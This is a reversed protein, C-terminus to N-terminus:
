DDVRPAAGFRDTFDALLRALEAPPDALPARNCRCLWARDPHAIALDAVAARLDAVALYRIMASRGRPYQVLGHERRLQLVGPASPFEEARLRHWPGFQVGPHYSAARNEVSGRTRRAGARLRATIAEDVQAGADNGSTGGPGGTRRSAACVLKAIM